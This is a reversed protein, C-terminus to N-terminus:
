GKSTKLAQSEPAQKSTQNKPCVPVISSINLFYSYYFHKHINTKYARTPLATLTVM